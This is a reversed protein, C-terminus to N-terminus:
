QIVYKKDPVVFKRSICRKVIVIGESAYPIMMPIFILVYQSKGEFLLHYAFGGMVCLLCVLYGSTVEKRHNWIGILSFLYLLQIYYKMYNFLMKSLKGRYIDTIIPSMKMEHKLVQSVYISEFTPENWQSLVKKTFFTVAYQPNYLMIKTREKLDEKIQNSIKQPDYDNSGQVYYTYGNFWGPAMDSEQMGMVLYSTLPTGNGLKEGCRHEYSMKMMSYGAFCASMVIIIAIINKRNMKKMSDIILLMIIAIEVITCNKKMLVGLGACLAMAFMYKSSYGNLYSLFFSIALTSFMVGLLNGYEFTCFLIPQILLVLIVTACKEIDDKNFMKRIIHLISNYTIIVSLVNLVQLMIHMRNGFVRSFLETVFLYGVQYPFKKLYFGETKWESFDHNIVDKAINEIIKQDFEPISQTYFIWLVGIGLIFIVMIIKYFNKHIGSMRKHYHSYWSLLFLIVLLTCLVITSLVMNNHTFLVKEQQLHDVDMKCTILFNSIVLWLFVIVAITYIIKNCIDSMKKM